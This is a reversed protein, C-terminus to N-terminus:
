LGGQKRHPVRNPDDTSNPDELRAGSKLPRLMRLAPGNAKPSWSMANSERGCDGNRAREAARIPVAPSGDGRQHARRGGDAGPAGQHGQSRSTDDNADDHVCTVM